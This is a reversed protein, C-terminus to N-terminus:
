MILHDIIPIDQFEKKESRNIEDKRRKNNEKSWVLIMQLKYFLLSIIFKEVIKAYITGYNM